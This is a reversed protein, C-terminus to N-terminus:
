CPTGKNGPEYRAELIPEPKWKSGYIVCSGFSIIGPHLDNGVKIMTPIVTYFPASGATCTIDRQDAIYPALNDANSGEPAIDSFDIVSTSEITYDCTSRHSNAITQSGYGWLPRHEGSDSVCRGDLCDNDTDINCNNSVQTCWGPGFRNKCENSYSNCSDGQTFETKDVRQIVSTATNNYAANPIIDTKAQADYIRMSYKFVSGTGNAADWYGQQVEDIIDYTDRRMCNFHEYDLIKNKDVTNPFIRDGYLVDGNKYGVAREEYALCDASSVMRRQALLSETTADFQNSAFYVETKLNLMTILVILFIMMSILNVAFFPLIAQSKKSKM